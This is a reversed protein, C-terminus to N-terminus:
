TFRRLGDQSFPDCGDPFGYHCLDWIPTLHCASLAELVPEVTRFDYHGGGRDVLPWRIAERVTGIGLDMVREYDQKLHHDHGTLAMYDKRQRDKWIFTSCEFGAMFFTPFVSEDPRPDAAQHEAM